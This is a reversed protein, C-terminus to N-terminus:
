NYKKNWIDIREKLKEITISCKKWKSSNDNHIMLKCNAPHKIIDTSINMKFGENISFMHDRSIGGLNDGHNKAKYWGNEKILDFEFEDPYDKLNFDFQCDKKYNQLETRNKNIFELKCKMDCFIQNRKQFPLLISCSKCRKPNLNYKDINIKHRKKISELKNNLGIESVDYKLGKRNKININKGLCEDSCYTNNRKDYPIIRNCEKCLKPNHYYENLYKNKLADNNKNYDRINKNVYINRCKLSCYTRHEKVEIECNKCKKM